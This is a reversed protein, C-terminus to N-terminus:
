VKTSRQNQVVTRDKCANEAHCVRALNWKLQEITEISLFGLFTGSVFFLIFYKCSCMTEIAPVFYDDCITALLWFCYCALLVHVIIWGRQREARTFGDPPLELIAAQTCNKQVDNYAATVLRETTTSSGNVITWEIDDVNATENVALIHRSRYSEGAMSCWFSNFIKIKFYAADAFIFFPIEVWRFKTNSCWLCKLSASVCTNRYFAFMMENFHRTLLWKVASFCMESSALLVFLFFIIIIRISKDETQIQNKPTQM